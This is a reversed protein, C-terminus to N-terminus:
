SRGRNRPAIAAIREREVHALWQLSLSTLEEGTMTLERRDFSDMVTFLQNHISGTRDQKKEAHIVHQCLHPETKLIPRSM